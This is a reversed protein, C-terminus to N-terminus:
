VLSYKCKKIKPIEPLKRRRRQQGDIIPMKMDMQHQENIIKGEDMMLFSATSDDDLHHNPSSQYHSKYSDMTDLSSCIDQLHNSTVNAKLGDGVEDDELAIDTTTSNTTNKMTLKDSELEVDEGGYDPVETYVLEDFDDNNPTLRFSFCLCLM